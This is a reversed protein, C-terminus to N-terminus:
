SARFAIRYIHGDHHLDLLWDASGTVCAPLTVKAQWHGGGDVFRYRNFGMDMDRMSFEATPAESGQKSLTLTFPSRQRPGDVFRLVSGDPLACGQQLASCSVSTVAPAAPQRQQLYWSILAVKLAAFVLLALAIFQWQRRSLAKM